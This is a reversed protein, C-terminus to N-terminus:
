QEAESGKSETSGEREVPVRVVEANRRIVKYAVEIELPDISGSRAPGPKRKAMAFTPGVRLSTLGLEAVEPRVLRIQYELSVEKQDPKLLVNLNLERRLSRSPRLVGGLQKPLTLTVGGPLPHTEDKVVEIAPQGFRETMKVGRLRVTQRYEAETGLNVEVQDTPWPLSFQVARMPGKGVESGGRWERDFDTARLSVDGRYPSKGNPAVTIQLRRRGQVTVERARVKDSARASNGPIVRRPPAFRSLEQRLVERGDQRVVFVRQSPPTAYGKPVAVTQHRDGNHQVFPFCPVEGSETIVAYEAYLPRPGELVIEM